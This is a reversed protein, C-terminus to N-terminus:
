ELGLRKREASYDAYEQSALVVPMMKTPNAVIKVMLQEMAFTALEKLPLMKLKTQDAASRGALFKDKDALDMLIQFIPIINDENAAGILGFAMANMGFMQSPVMAMREKRPRKIMELVQVTAEVDEAVMFFDTAVADGIIGTVLIRRTMPNKVINM